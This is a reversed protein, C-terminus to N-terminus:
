SQRREVRSARDDSAVPRRWNGRCVRASVLQLYTRQEEAGAAVDIHDTPGFRGALLQRKM